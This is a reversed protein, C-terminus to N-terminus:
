DDVTIYDKIAEFAKDGVGSVNKIDEITKFPTKERYTIIAASKSPGIGSLTELQSNTATNINIKNSTVKTDDNDEPDVKDETNDKVENICNNIEIVECECKPLEFKPCTLPEVKKLESTSFVYVVMQPKLTKSLNINNTVANKLLGGSAKIADNITNGESFEYVGPKKVSGKIDVFFTKIDQNTEKVVSEEAIIENAKKGETKEPFEFIFSSVILLITFSFILINKLTFYKRM